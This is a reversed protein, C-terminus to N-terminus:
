QWTRFYQPITALCCCITLLVGGTDSVYTLDGSGHEKFVRGNMIRLGTNRCLELLRRGYNNVVKDMSERHPLDFNGSQALDTPVFHDNNFEIFDPLSATRANLDGCIILPYDNFTTTYSALENELM